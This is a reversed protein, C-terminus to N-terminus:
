HLTNSNNCREELHGVAGGEERLRLGETGALGARGPQARQGPATKVLVAAQSNIVAGASIKLIQMFLARGPWTRVQERDTARESGRCNM